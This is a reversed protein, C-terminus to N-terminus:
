NQIVEINLLEKLVNSDIILFHHLLEAMGKFFETEAHENMKTTLQPVYLALHNDIFQQQEMLLYNVEQITTETKTEGSQISLQNLHYMFDLELGIHDDAEINNTGTHYGYKHYLKRVDMTTKQFLLKDQRVYVSEWPSAQIEFPGIFMKTYDWHLDEFHKEIIGPNFKSLYAKIKKVGDSIGESEEQFPFLDIMNQQIFHKVYERSPEEIFFRRFIDYAYERAYFINMVDDVLIKQKTMEMRSM